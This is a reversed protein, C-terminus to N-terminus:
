QHTSNLLVDPNWSCINCSDLFYVYLVHVQLLKSMNKKPQFYRTQVKIELNDAGSKLVPEMDMLTDTVMNLLSHMQTTREEAKDRIGKLREELVRRCNETYKRQLEEKKNQFHYLSFLNNAFIMM